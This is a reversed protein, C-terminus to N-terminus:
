VGNLFTRFRLNFINLLDGLRTSVFTELIEREHIVGRCGEYLNLAGEFKFFKDIKFEEIHQIFIISHALQM